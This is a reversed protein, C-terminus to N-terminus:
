LTVTAYLPHMKVSMEPVLEVITSDWRIHGQEVLRAALTATMAKTCSGLHWADEFTVREESGRVRVGVAASEIIREGDIVVVAMGPIDHRKILHELADQLELVAGRSADPASALMLLVLVFRIWMAAQEKHM